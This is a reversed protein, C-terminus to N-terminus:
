IQDPRASPRAATLRDLAPPPNAASHSGDRTTRACCFGGGPLKSRLHVLSRSRASEPPTHAGALADAGRTPAEPYRHGTPNHTYRAGTHPHHLRGTSGRLEGENGQTPNRPRRHQERGRHGRALTSATHARAM